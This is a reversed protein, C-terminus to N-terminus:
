TYTMSTNNVIVSKYPFTDSVVWCNGLIMGGLFREFCSLENSVM